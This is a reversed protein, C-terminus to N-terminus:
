TEYGLFGLVKLQDVSNCDVIRCGSTSEPQDSLLHSLCTPLHFGQLDSIETMYKRLRSLLICLLQEGTRAHTAGVWTEFPHGVDESSPHVSTLVYQRAM